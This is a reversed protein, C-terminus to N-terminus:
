MAMRRAVTKLVSFHLRMADARPAALFSADFAGDSREAFDAMAMMM